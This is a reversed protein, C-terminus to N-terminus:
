MILKIKDHTAYFDYTLTANDEVFAIWLTATGARWTSIGVAANAGIRWTSIGVATAASLLGSGDTPCSPRWASKSIVTPASALLRSRFAALIRDSATAVV